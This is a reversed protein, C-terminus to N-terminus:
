VLIWTNLGTLTKAVGQPTTEMDTAWTWGSLGCFLTALVAVLMAPNLQKMIEDGQLIIPAINNDSINNGSLTGHAM